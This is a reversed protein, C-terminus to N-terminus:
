REVEKPKIERGMGEKEGERENKDRKDKEEREEDSGEEM